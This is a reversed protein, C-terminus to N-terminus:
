FQFVTSFLQQSAVRLACVILWFAVVSKNQLYLRFDTAAFCSSMIKKEICPPFFPFPAQLTVQQKSTTQLCLPCSFDGGNWSLVKSRQACFRRIAVIRFYVNLLYSKDRSATVPTQPTLKAESQPAGACVSSEFLGGGPRKKEKRKKDIIPKLASCLPKPKFWSDLSPFENQLSSRLFWLKKDSM